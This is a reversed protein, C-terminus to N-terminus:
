ELKESFKKTLFLVENKTHKEGYFASYRLHRNGEVHKIRYRRSIKKIGIFDIEQFNMLYIDYKSNESDKWVHFFSQLSSLYNQGQIDAYFCKIIIRPSPWLNPDDIEKKSPLFALGKFSNRLTFFDKIMVHSVFNDFRIRFKHSHDKDKTNEPELFPIFEPLHIPLCNYGLPKIAKFQVEADLYINQAPNNGINSLECEISICHRKDKLIDSSKTLDIDSSIDPYISITKPYIKITPRSSLKLMKRTILTAVLTIVMLVTTVLLTLLTVNQLIWEIIKM